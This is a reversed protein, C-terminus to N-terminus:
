RKPSSGSGTASTAGSHSIPAPGRSHNKRKRLPHNRRRLISPSIPPVVANESPNHPRYPVDNSDHNPPLFSTSIVSLEPGLHRHSHSVDPAYQCCQPRAHSARNRSTISSHFLLFSASSFTLIFFIFCFHLWSTMTFDPRERIVPHLQFIPNSISSM